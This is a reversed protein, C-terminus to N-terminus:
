KLEAHFTGDWDRPPPEKAYRACREALVVSPPDEGCQEFLARASAFDRRLYVDFADEYARAARLRPIEEGVAGLLEYVRIAETKGVVTVSDVLRFV